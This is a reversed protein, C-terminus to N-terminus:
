YACLFSEKVTLHVCVSLCSPICIAQHKLLTSMQHIEKISGIITLDTEASNDVAHRARMRVQVARKMRKGLVLIAASLDQSTLIFTLQQTGLHASSPPSPCLRLMCVGGMRSRCCTRGSATATPVSVKQLHGPLYKCLEQRHQNIFGGPHM